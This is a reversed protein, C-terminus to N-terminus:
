QRSISLILSSEQRKDKSRPSSPHALRSRDGGWLSLPVGAREWLPRPLCLASGRRRSGLVYPRVRTTARLPTASGRVIAGESTYFFGPAKMLTMLKIWSDSNHRSMLQPSRLGSMRRQPSRLSLILCGPSRLSLLIAIGVTCCNFLQHQWSIAM